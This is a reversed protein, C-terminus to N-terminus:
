SEGLTQRALAPSLRPRLSSAVYFSRLQDYAADLNDNVLVADFWHSSLIESRANALRRVISEESETGRNRLRRELEELSPPLIFVFKADPLTLSLQAAGQVDIDFLVDRGDAMADLVPQLPTGYFNGHVEAWEAFYGEKKRRIFEKKDIFHYDVGNTEGARPHRTTCSISFCLPFDACLRSILTSKGAGSPACVVLPFGKRASLLQKM